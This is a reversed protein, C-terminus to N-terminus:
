KIIELGARVTLAQEILVHSSNCKLYDMQNTHDFVLDGKINSCSLHVIRSSFAASFYKSKYGFNPQVGIRFLNASIDGKTLPYDETTYPFHNEVGGFGVIGYAEFVFGEQIPMFYGAGFEIFKGSGGDGNDLDSPIFLGGNAKIAINEAIGYAGQFEIQNANGSLTLNTEGKQSILPVNQTNPTYYIPSCSAFGLGVIVLLTKAIDKM